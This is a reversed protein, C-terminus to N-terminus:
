ISQEMNSPRVFPGFAAVAATEYARAADSLNHFYGLHRKKSSSLSLRAQWKRRKKNWFVGKVKSASVISPGSNHKNQVPSAARLNEIRNDSRDGNVHDVYHEPWQGFHYLWALRSSQYKRGDVKILIYGASNPSGAVSGISALGGMTKRWTFIGTASDFSLLERVRDATTTFIMKM